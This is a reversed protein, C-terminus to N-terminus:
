IKNEKIARVMHRKGPPGAVREVRFGIERLTRKVIGKACYTVLVGNENMAEYIKRFVKDSWMEPQKDPSFADYFVVDYASSLEVDIVSAHIKKLRFYGTICTELGWPAQQIKKCEDEFGAGVVTPYNLQQVLLDELPYLEIGEYVVTRNSKKAEILALIANLGTGFGIELIKLSKGPHFNMGKDIFVHLSETVAGNTSHYHEGIQENFLTHSGDLSLKIIVPM